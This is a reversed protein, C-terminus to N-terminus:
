LDHTSHGESAGRIWWFLSENLFNSSKPSARANADRITESWMGFVKTFTKRSRVDRRVSALKPTLFSATVLAGHVALESEVVDDVPNGSENRNQCRVSRDLEDVLLDEVVEALRELLELPPRASVGNVM